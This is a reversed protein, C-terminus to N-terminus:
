EWTYLSKWHSEILGLAINIHTAVLTKFRSITLANATLPKYRVYLFVGFHSQSMFWSMWRQPGHISPSGTRPLLLLANISLKITLLWRYPIVETLALISITCKPVAKLIFWRWCFLLDLPAPIPLISTMAHTCTGYLLAEWLLEFTDIHTVALIGHEGPFSFFFLLFIDVHASSLIWDRQVDVHGSLLFVTM